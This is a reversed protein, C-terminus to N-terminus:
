AWRVVPSVVTIRRATCASKEAWNASSSKVTTISPASRPKVPSLVTALGPTQFRSYGGCRRSTGGLAGLLFRWPRWSLGGLVGLAGLTKNEPHCPRGRGHLAPRGNGSPLSWASRVVARAELGRSKGHERLREERQPGASPPQGGKSHFFRVGRGPLSPCPSPRPEFPWHRRTLASSVWRCPRCPKRRAVRTHM